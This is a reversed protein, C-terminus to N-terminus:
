YLVLPLSRTPWYNFFWSHSYLASFLMFLCVRLELFTKILRMNVSIWYAIGLKDSVTLYWSAFVQYLLIVLYLFSYRKIQKRTGKLWLSIKLEQLMNGQKANQVCKWKFMSFVFIYPLLLSLNKTTLALLEIM